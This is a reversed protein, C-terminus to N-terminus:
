HHSCLRQAKELLAGIRSEALIEVVQDNDEVWNRTSRGLEFIRPNVIPETKEINWRRCRGRDSWMHGHRKLDWRRCKGRCSWLHGRGKLYSIGRSGGM